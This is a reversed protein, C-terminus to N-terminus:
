PRREPPARMPARTLELILIGAFILAVGLWQAARLREGLLWAGLLLTTPPGVNSVLAAREAGLLRVGEAMTLLPVVTAILVIGTVHLADRGHWAPLRAGHRLVYHVVLCAAAASLAALSFAASGLTGTWRDSALFYIAMTLACALVLGSGTLNANLVRLDFGSVVLLIGLYTVGVAIVVNVRPPQRYAIASLIVVMSPYSFLLVREVSVDLTRLASFDLTSGVYYCLAGSAAAGLLATRPGRALAGPKMRWLTWIGIVPLALVSRTVVVADTTWGDAYLM